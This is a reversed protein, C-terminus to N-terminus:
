SGFWDDDIRGQKGGLVDLAMKGTDSLDGIWKAFAEFSTQWYKSDKGATTRTAYLLYYNLQRTRIPVKIIIDRHDSGRIVRDIKTDRIVNEYRRIYYEVLESPNSSNLLTQANNQDIDLMDVLTEQKYRKKMVMEAFTGPHLLMMVDGYYTLFSRLASMKLTAPSPPDVFLMMHISYSAWRQNLWTKIEEIFNSNTVDGHLIIINGDDNMKNEKRLTSGIGLEKLIIDFRESLLLNNNKDNDVLIMHDFYCDYSRKRSLSHAALLALICSGCIYYRGNTTDLRNLGNGSFLDLYIIKQLSGEQRRKAMIHLYPFKLYSYLSYLKFLTGTHEVNFAQSNSSALFEGWELITRNSIKEKFNNLFRDYLREM